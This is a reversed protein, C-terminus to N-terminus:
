WDTDCDYCHHINHYKCYTNSSGCSPCCEGDVRRSRFEQSNMRVVKDPPCSFNCDSCHYWSTGYIKRTNVSGCKPCCRYVM